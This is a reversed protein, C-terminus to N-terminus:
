DSDRLQKIFWEYYIVYKASMDQPRDSEFKLGCDSISGLPSLWKGNEYIVCRNSSVTRSSSGSFSEEVSKVTVQDCECGEPETAEYLSGEASGKWKVCGKYCRLICSSRTFIFRPSPGSIDEDTLITWISTKDLTDILTRPVDIKKM